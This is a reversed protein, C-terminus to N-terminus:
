RGIISGSNLLNAFKEIQSGAKDWWPRGVTKQGAISGYPVEIPKGGLFATGTRPQITPTPGTYTSYTNRPRNRQAWSKGTTQRYAEDVANAARTIAM